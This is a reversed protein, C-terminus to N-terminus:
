QKYFLLLKECNLLRYRWDGEEFLEDPLHNLALNQPDISSSKEKMIQRYPEYFWLGGSTLFSNDIILYDINYKKIFLILDRIDTSTYATIFDDVKPKVYNYYKKFYIAHASEVSFLVSQRCFSPIQDCVNAPGAFLLPQQFASIKQYLVKHKEYDTIGIGKPSKIRFVSYSLLVFIVMKVWFTYRIPQIFSFMRIVLLFLFPLYTYRLYRQPIFFHPLFWQALYFIITGSLLLLLLSEDFRKHRSGKILNVLLISLFFVVISFAYKPFPSHLYYHWPFDLPMRPNMNKVFDVRGGTMFEPMSLLETKSFFAGIYESQELQYSKILLLIGCVVITIIVGLYEKYNLFLKKKLFLKLYALGVMGCEVLFIIPYFLTSAILLLQIGKKNEDNWYYLFGLLLPTAYARANFGIMRELPINSLMLMAVFALMWSFRKRVLFFTFFSTMLLTFFPLYKSLAIPPIFISFFRNVWYVGWPQITKSAQLYFDNDQFFNPWYEYLWILHQPFDDNVRYPHIFADYQSYTYLLLCYITILLPNFFVEKDELKKLYHM